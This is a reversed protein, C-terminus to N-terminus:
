PLWIMEDVTEVAQRLLIGVGAVRIGVLDQRRSSAELIAQSEGIAFPRLCVLREEATALPEPRVGVVHESVQGLIVDLADEDRRRAESRIAQFRDVLDAVLRLLM